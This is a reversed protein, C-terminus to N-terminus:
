GCSVRVITGRADTGFNIRTTQFDMTAADNPGLVRV